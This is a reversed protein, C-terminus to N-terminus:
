APREAGSAEQERKQKALEDPCQASAHLASEAQPATVGAIVVFGMAALGAGFGVLPRISFGM